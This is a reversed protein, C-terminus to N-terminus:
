KFYTLIVKTHYNEDLHISKGRYNLDVDKFDEEIAAFKDGFDIKNTQPNVMAFSYQIHTLSDWQLNTVNFYNHYESKYAWEPFYGVIKRKVDSSSEVTTKISDNQNQAYAFIGSPTVTTLTFISLTVLSISKKLKKKINM